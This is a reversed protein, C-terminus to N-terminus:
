DDIRGIGYGAFGWVLREFLDRTPSGLADKVTSELIEIRQDQLALLARYYSEMAAIQSDRVAVELELSDITQRAEVLLSTPVTTSDTEASGTGDSETPLILLLTVLLLGVILPVKRKSRPVKLDADTIKTRVNTAQRKRMKRARFRIVHM